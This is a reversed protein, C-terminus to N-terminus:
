VHSFFLGPLLILHPGFVSASEIALNMRLFGLSQLSGLLSRAESMADKLDFLTQTKFVM